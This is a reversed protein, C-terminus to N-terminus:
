NVAREREKKESILLMFINTYDSYKTSNKLIIQGNNTTWNQLDSQIFAVMVACKFQKWPELMWDVIKVDWM